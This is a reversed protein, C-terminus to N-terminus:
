QGIANDILRLWDDQSDLLVYKGRSELIRIARMVM